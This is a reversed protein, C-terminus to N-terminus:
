RRVNSSVSSSRSSCKVWTSSRAPSSRFSARSLVLQTGFFPHSSKGRTFYPRNEIWSQRLGILYDALIRFDTLCQEEPMTNVFDNKDSLGMAERLTGLEGGIENPGTSRFRVMDFTLIDDESMPVRLNRLREEDHNIGLLLEFVQDIRQVRPGGPKGLEDVLQKMLGRIVARLADVDEPDATSDLARLRDLLVNSEVIAKQTRTYISAQPGSIGGSLDTQVAYSRPTWKFQIHGEVDNLEFSQLLANSFGKPDSSTPNWGLIERLANTAVPALSGLSSFPSQGSGASPVQHTLGPYATDDIISEVADKESTEKASM